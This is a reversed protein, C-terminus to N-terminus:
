KYLLFGTQWVPWRICAFSNCEGGKM